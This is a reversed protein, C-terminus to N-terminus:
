STEHSSLAPKGMASGQGPIDGKPWKCALQPNWGPAEFAPLFANFAPDRNTMPFQGFIHNFVASLSLNKTRLDVEVYLLQVFQPLESHTQIFVQDRPRTQSKCPDYSGIPIGM